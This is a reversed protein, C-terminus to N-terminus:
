LVGEKELEAILELLRGTPQGKMPVRDELNWKLVLKGDKYVHVHRPSHDGKWTIFIFNGRRIKGVTRVNGHTTVTPLGNGGQAARDAV